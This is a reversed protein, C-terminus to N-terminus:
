PRQDQLELRTQWGDQTRLYTATVGRCFERRAASWMMREVRIAGREVCLLNFSNEEGRGRTSTATGAQVLLASYGAIRYRTTTLVSHSVHLHGSLILDVGSTALVAMAVEGGGVLQAMDKEGPPLDFPHHTVLVKTVESGVNRFRETIQAMQEENIRGYKSTLARATNVGAIAIEEDRYFPALDDTIHKRYRCLSWLFRAFLNHLPIDHNGPVILKPSPLRDLFQRAERFESTRARQTLDGSVAILDPKLEHVCAVLPDIVAPDIRGFHLDSLHLLTRM